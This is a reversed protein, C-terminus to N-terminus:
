RTAVSNGRLCSTSSSWPASVQWFQRPVSLVVAAFGHLRALLRVRIGTLVDDRLLLGNGGIPKFM